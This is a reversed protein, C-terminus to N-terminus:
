GKNVDGSGGVQKTVKPDGYYTVDGSGAINVTLDESASVDVDGSGAISVTAEKTALGKAEVDGSGNISVTCDDATGSVEISGSGNISLALKESKVGTVTAGGSGNIQLATLAPLTVTVHLKGSHGGFLGSSKDELVLEGDTVRVDLDKVREESGQIDISEKEGVTVTLEIAGNASISEFGTLNEQRKAQPGADKDFDVGGFCGSLSLAAIGAVATKLTKGTGGM